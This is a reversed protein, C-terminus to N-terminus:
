HFGLLYWLQRPPLEASPPWGLVSPLPVPNRETASSSTTGSNDQQLGKVRLQYATVLFSILDEEAMEVEGQYMFNLVLGM